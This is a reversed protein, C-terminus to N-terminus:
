KITYRVCPVIYSSVLDCFDACSQRALYLRPMNHDSYVKSELKFNENLAEQLLAAHDFTFGHCSLNTNISTKNRGRNGDDMYWYALARPTLMSSINNPVCKLRKGHVDVPYFLDYYPQFCAHSYTKFRAEYREPKLSKIGGILNIKPPTGVFPKLVSYVHDVDNARVM